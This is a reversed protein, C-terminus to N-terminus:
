GAIRVDFLRFPSRDAARCDSATNSAVVASPTPDACATSPVQTLPLPSHVSGVLQDLLGVTGFPVAVKLLPPVVATVLLPPTTVIPSIRKVLTGLACAKAKVMLLGNMMLALPMTLLEVLVCVKSTVDPLESTNWFPLVALLPVPATEIVLSLPPKM